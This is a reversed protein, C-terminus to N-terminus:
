PTEPPTGNIIRERKEIAMELLVGSAVGEIQSADRAESRRQLIELEADHLELMKSPLIERGRLFFCPVTPFDDSFWAILNDEGKSLALAIDFALGSSIAHTRYGGGVAAVIWRFAAGTRM